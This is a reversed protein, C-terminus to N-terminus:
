APNQISPSPSPYNPLTLKTFSLEVKGLNELACYDLLHKSCCDVNCGKIFGPPIHGPYVTPNM